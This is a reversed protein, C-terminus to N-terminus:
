EVKSLDVVGISSDAGSVFLRDGSLTSDGLIPQATDVVKVNSGDAEVIAIKGDKLTIVIKGNWSIPRGTARGHPLKAEWTPASIDGSFGLLTGDEKTALALKGFSEPGWTAIGDLPYNGQVKLSTPDIALLDNGAPGDGLTFISTGNTVLPGIIKRGAKAELVQALYPTGDNPIYKVTFIRGDRNAVAFTDNSIPCPRQWDFEEDVNAQPVFVADPSTARPVVHRVEGNNLGLLVGNMFPVPDSTIKLDNVDLTALSVPLSTNSPIFSVSESRDMPGLIFGSGDGFGVSRTFVLNKRTESARYAPKHSIGSAITEASMEYFDGQSNVVTVKDNNILPAGALGGGLDLRWVERLSEPDVGAISTMRSGARKRVHVLLGEYSSMEGVFYDANEAVAQDQIKQKAVIVTYQVIGKTGIWIKGGGATFFIEQSAPLNLSKEAVTALKFEEDDSDLEFVNVEGNITVTALYNGYLEPSKVIRGSLETKPGAEKLKSDEGSDLLRLECTKSDINIPVVLIDQLLVPPVRMMGDRHGTYFAQVCDIETRSVSLVYINLHEGPQYLINGSRNTSMPVTLKQPIKVMALINGTEPDIRAVKGSVMTIFIKNSVITPRLFDEGVDKHWITKGDVPDVLRIRNQRQDSILVREPEDLWIPDITTEYGVFYRWKVKGEGVDIGYVSGEVRFAGNAGKLEAFPQGTATPIVVRNVIAPSVEEVVNEFKEVDPSLRSVLSQEKKSIELVSDIVRKDAEASPHRTILDDYDQFAEYTQGANIKEAISAVAAVTDKERVISNRVNNLTAETAEIMSSFSPLERESRPVFKGDDVLKKMLLATALAEEKEEVTEKNAAGNAAKQAAVVTDLAIMKRIEDKFSKEDTLQDAMVQNIASINNEFVEVTNKVNKGAAAIKMEAVRFKVHAKPVNPDGKFNKIFDKYSEVSAAYSQNQFLEEAENFVEDSSGKMIVTFFFWGALLLIVLSASGLIIWKSEFSQEQIKKGEFEKKPESKEQPADLDAKPTASNYPDGSGLPNSPVAFPDTIEEVAEVPQATPLNTALDVIEEGGGVTEEVLDAASLVSANEVVDLPQAAAAQRQALEQAVVQLLNDAQAQTLLGKELCYQAVAQAPPTKGPKAIKKRLKGIVAADLLNSAELKDIFIQASM